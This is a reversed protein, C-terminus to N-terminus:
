APPARPRVSRPKSYRQHSKLYKLIAVRILCELFAARPVSRRVVVREAEALRPTLAKKVTHKAAPKQEPDEGSVGSNLRLADVRSRM